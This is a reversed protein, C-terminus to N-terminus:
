KLFYQILYGGHIWLYSYAVISIPKTVLMILTFRRLSMDTLGTIMVLLDAPSIPSLMCIIFFREFGKSELRKEYRYFTDKKTFLFIFRRGYRKVSLFLLISGVVIGIYNYLFGYWSGFVLFGVVTTVGGPIIPFVVQIIQVGIFILPGLLTYRKVVDKLVNSDNLIGLRYFWVVLLVTIIVALFGLIQIIKQLRSYRLGKKEM